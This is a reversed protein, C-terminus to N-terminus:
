YDVGKKYIKQNSTSLQVGYQINDDCRLSEDYEGSKIYDCLWSIGKPFEELKYRTFLWVRKNLGNLDELMNLDVLMNSLEGIDQDLPEGGLIWINDIMKDFDKIQNIISSMYNESLPTGINFSRLEPNHCGKCTGNCGSLYIEFAKYKLTYQTSAIHIM